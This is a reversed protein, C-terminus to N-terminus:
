QMLTMKRVEVFSRGPNGVATADMRCFYVGSSMTAHWLVSHYGSSQVQNVLEAVEQGLINFLRLRVISQVPLSYGITTSPNFPNPYNQELQFATPTLSQNGEVGTVAATFSGAMGSGDATGHVQCFYHYTGAVQVVYSFQTGASNQWAAAGAPITSSSLPHVSFDGIWQVTDGIAVNLTNPSYALGITGGFQIVHTTASLPMAAVLLVAATALTLRQLSSGIIMKHM